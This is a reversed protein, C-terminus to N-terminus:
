RPILLFSFNFRTKMELNLNLTKKTVFVEPSRHISQRLPSLWDAGVANGLLYGFSLARLQAMVSDFDTIGTIVANRSPYPGYLPEYACVNPM